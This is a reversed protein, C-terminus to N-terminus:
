IVDSFSSKRLDTKRKGDNKQIKQENKSTARIKRISLVGVTHIVWIFTCGGGGGGVRGSKASDITATPGQNTASVYM